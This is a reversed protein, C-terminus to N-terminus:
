LLGGLVRAEMQAGERRSNHLCFVPAPGDRKSLKRKRPRAGDSDGMFISAPVKLENLKHAMAYADKQMRLMVAVDDEGKECLATVAAAVYSSKDSREEFVALKPNSRLRLRHGRRSWEARM